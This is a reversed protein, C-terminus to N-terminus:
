IRNEDQAIEIERLSGDIIFRTKFTKLQNKCSKSLFDGVYRSPLYIILPKFTDLLKKGKFVELKKNLNGKHNKEFDNKNIRHEVEDHKEADIMLPDINPIGSIEQQFINNYLESTIRPLYPYLMKLQDSKVRSILDENSGENSRYTTLNNSLGLARISATRFKRADMDKFYDYITYQLKTGLWFNLPNKLNIVDRECNGFKTELSEHIFKNLRRVSSSQFDNESWDLDKDLSQYNMLFFRIVDLSSEKSVCELPNDLISSILDDLYLVNGKSKSMKEGNITVHSTLLYEKPLFIEPLIASHNFLSFPFHVSGHELGAVNLDIPCINEVLSKVEALKEESIGISKSVDRIDGKKLYIFDFLDDQLHEPRLINRNLALSLPYYEMYINSDALAEIRCEPNFPSITGINGQKKRECPKAQRTKIINPLDSGYKKPFLRMKSIMEITKEQYTLNSYDIANDENLRVIIKRSPHIKCYFTGGELRFFRGGDGKTIMDELLMTRAIPVAMGDYKGSNKGMIGEEQEKYSQKRIEELRNKDEKSINFTIPRGQSDFIVPRANFMLKSDLLYYADFPDHFPVSMVFGSGIDSRVFDGPIIPMKDGTFPNNVEYVSPDIKRKIKSEKKRFYSVIDEIRSTETLLVNDGIEVEVYEKNSNFYINTSGFVTEPRTTYVPIIRKHKDRFHILTGEQIRVEDFNIKGNPTVESFDEEIAKVEGCEDCYPRPTSTRIILGKNALQRLTWQTYAHYRSDDTSFFGDSDLNVGLGALDKEYAAKYHNVLEKVKDEIDKRSLIKEATEDSIGYRERFKPSDSGSIRDIIQLLDKGTSHIGFPFFIKKGQRSSEYRATVDAAVQGLAHGVHLRGSPTSFAVISTFYNKEVM